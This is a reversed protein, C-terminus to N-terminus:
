QKKWYVSETALHTIDNIYIDKVKFNKDLELYSISCFSTKFNRSENIPMRLLLPIIDSIVGAHSVILINKAKEKKLLTIFKKARNYADIRNEGGEPRFEEEPLGSKVLAEKFLSGSKGEFIGVSQENLLPTYQIKKCSHKKLVIDATGKSRKLTASFIKDLKIKKLHNATRQSQEIGLETLTDQQEGHGRHGHRLLYLKM